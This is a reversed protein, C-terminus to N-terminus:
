FNPSVVSRGHCWAWAEQYGAYHLSRQIDGSLPWCVHLSQVVWDPVACAWGRGDEDSISSASWCGLKQWTSSIIATIVDDVNVSCFSSMSVGPGVSSFFPEPAGATNLRVANVKDYFFRSITWALQLLTEIKYQKQSIRLTSYHRARSIQTVSWELDNFIADNSLDYIRNGILM